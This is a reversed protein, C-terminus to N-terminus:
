FFMYPADVSLLRPRTDRHLECRALKKSTQKQSKKFLIRYNSGCILKNTHTTKFIPGVLVTHRPAPHEPVAGSLLKIQGSILSIRQNNGAHKNDATMAHFFSSVLKIFHFRLYFLV